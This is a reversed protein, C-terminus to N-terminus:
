RPPGRGAPPRSAPALRGALVPVTRGPTPRPSRATAAPLAAIVAKWQQQQRRYRDSREQHAQLAGTALAVDDLSAPGRTWHRAHHVALGHAALERLADATAPGSLRATRAIGAAPTPDATLAAYTLAATGGLATFAPHIASIWGARRRRWWSSREYRGPIRLQYRDARTLHHPTVLTILPDDESRLVALARAATRCSVGSQLALNRCGFEITMTGAVMAAQGLATLVLRISIAQRGWARTRRPDEAAIDTCTIWRRIEPYGSGPLDQRNPKKRGPGPSPPRSYAQSTPWNSDYEGRGGEAPADHPPAQRTLYAVAKRWEFPLLRDIRNRERPSAYLTALGAWSGTTIEARVEALTWGCAAAGTIVAMRAESRSTYRGPPWTGDRAIGHLRPAPRLRGGPRPLWPAGDDDHVSGPPASGPEAAPATSSLEAAFERLLGAWVAHGCPRRAAALADSLPITLAQWTGPRKWASGPPRVQADPNSTTSAWDLSRHRLAMARALDRLERWPLRADLLIYVHMGGSPSADTVAHGGLREVLTTIAAADAAVAAAPDASGAERARGADLDLALLRGTGTERDFVPITAPEEPCAAALPREHRRPYTRGGDRSM